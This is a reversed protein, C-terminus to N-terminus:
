AFWQLFKSLRMCTLMFVVRIGAAMASAKAPEAQAWCTTLIPWTAGIEPGLAWRPLSLSFAARMAISSSLAL